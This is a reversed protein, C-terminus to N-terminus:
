LIVTITPNNSCSPLAVTVDSISVSCTKSGTSVPDNFIFDDVYDEIDCQIKKTLTCNSNLMWLYLSTKPDLEPCCKEVAYNEALIQCHLSTCTKCVLKAAAAIM